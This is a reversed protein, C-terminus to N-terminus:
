KRNWKNPEGTGAYVIDPNSPSVAIDGISLSPQGDFIATWANGGDVSKFIGGSAAGVYIIETNAPDMEIDQVRGGINTPGEQQWQLYDRLSNPSGMGAKMDLAYRYAQYDVKGYPFSRQMLFWDSPEEKKEFSHESEDPISFPISVLISFLFGIFPISLLKM